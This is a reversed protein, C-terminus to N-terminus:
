PVYGENSVTNGLVLSQPTIKENRKEENFLFNFLFSSSFSIKGIQIALGFIDTSKMGLSSM